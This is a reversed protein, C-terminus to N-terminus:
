QADGAQDTLKGVVHLLTGTTFPTCLVPCPLRPMALVAPDGHDRTVFVTRQLLSPQQVRAMRYFVDGRLDPLGLDVVLCAFTYARLAHLGAEASSVAVVVYGAHMLVQTLSEALVEDGVVVLLCGGGTPWGKSGTAAVLTGCDMQM